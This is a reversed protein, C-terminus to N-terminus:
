TKFQGHNIGWGYIQNHFQTVFNEKDEAEARNLKKTPFYDSNLPSQKNPAHQKAENSDQETDLFSQIENVRNSRETAALVTSSM